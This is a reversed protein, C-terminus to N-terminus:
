PQGRADKYMMICAYVCTYICMSVCVLMCSCVYVACLNIFYISSLLSHWWVDKRDGTCSLGGLPGFGMVEVVSSDTQWTNILVLCPAQTM